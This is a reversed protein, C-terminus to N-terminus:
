AREEPTNGETTEMRSKDIKQIISFAYQIEEWNVNDPLIQLCEIAKQKIM